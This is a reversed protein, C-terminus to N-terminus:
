VSPSSLYATERLMGSGCRALSLDAKALGGNVSLGRPRSVSRPKVDVDWLRMSCPKPGSGSVLRQDCTVKSALVVVGQIDGLECLDYKCCELESENSVYRHKSLSV